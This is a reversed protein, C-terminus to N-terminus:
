TATRWAAWRGEDAGVAARARRVERGAALHQAARRSRQAAAERQGQLRVTVLAHFGQLSVKEVDGVPVDDVRVAAQPVLDLVDNFQIKVHYVKGGTANGGPLPVDAIGNCSALVACGALAAVGAFAARRLRPLRALARMVEVSGDRQRRTRRRDHAGPGAAPRRRLRARGAGAVRRGPLPLADPQEDDRLREQDAAVALEPRLFQQPEAPCTARRRAARHARDEPEDLTNTIKTLGAIDSTLVSRNDHVLQAVDGLALSLNRLASALSARDGNLQGSVTALDNTLTRVDGDSQQLANTFTALNNITGTLDTKNDALTSSSRPSTRSRRTSRRRRQRAPERREGVAAPLARRVQQGREPRARGVPRRHEAAADLARGPAQTRAVPIQANNAMVAGGRYVPGLQVYRDSVLSPPIIFASANAPIRRKADYSMKVAVTTGEPKISTIKGVIVGLVRVSSGKYLGTARTFHATVTKHPSGSTIVTVVAVIVLLRPWARRSRSSTSRRDGADSAEWRTRHHRRHRRAPEAPLQVQAAFPGLNAVYTDFWKGNGITNSFVRM